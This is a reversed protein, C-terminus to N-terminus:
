LHLYLHQYRIGMACLCSRAPNRTGLKLSFYWLCLHSWRKDQPHKKGLDGHWKESRKISGWSALAWAHRLRLWPILGDPSSSILINVLTYDLYLTGSLQRSSVLTYGWALLPSPPQEMCSSTSSASGKGHAGAQEPGVLSTPGGQATTRCGPMGHTWSIYIQTVTLQVPAINIQRFQDDTRHEALPAWPPFFGIEFSGEWLRPKTVCLSLTLVRCKIYINSTIHEAKNLFDTQCETGSSSIPDTTVTHILSAKHLVVLKHVNPNSFTRPMKLLSTCNQYTLFHCFSQLVYMFRGLAYKCFQSM